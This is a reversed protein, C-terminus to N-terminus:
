ILVNGRRTDFAHAVCACIIGWVPTFFVVVTLLASAITESVPDSMFPGFGHRNVVIVIVHAVIGALLGSVAGKLVVRRWTAAVSSRLVVGIVLLLAYFVPIFIHARDFRYFRDAFGLPSLEAIAFLVVCILAYRIVPALSKSM